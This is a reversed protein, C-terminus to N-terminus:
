FGGFHFFISFYFFGVLESSSLFIGGEGGKHFKVCFFNVVGLLVLLFNFFKSVEFYWFLFGEFNVLLFAFVGEGGKHFKM